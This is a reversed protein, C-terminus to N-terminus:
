GRRTDDATTMSLSPTFPQHRAAPFAIINDASVAAGAEAAIKFIKYVTRLVVTM